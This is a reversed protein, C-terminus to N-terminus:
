RTICRKRRKKTKLTYNQRQKKRPQRTKVAYIKSLTLMDHTTCDARLYWQEFSLHCYVTHWPQRILSQVTMRAASCTSRNGHEAASEFVFCTAAASPQSLLKLSMWSRRENTQETGTLPRCAIRFYVHLFSQFFINPRPNSERWSWKWSSSRTLLEGLGMFPTQAKEKGTGDWFPSLHKDSMPKM